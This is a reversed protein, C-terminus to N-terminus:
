APYKVTIRDNRANRKQEAYKYIQYRACVVMENMIILFTTFSYLDIYFGQLCEFGGDCIIRGLGQGVPIKGIMEAIPSTDGAV